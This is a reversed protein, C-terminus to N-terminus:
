VYVYRSRLLDKAKSDLSVGSLTELHVWHKLVWQAEAETWQTFPSASFQKLSRLTKLRELDQGQNLKLSQRLVMAENNALQPYEKIVMLYSWVRLSQLLVLQSLQSLIAEVTENERRIMSLSLTKMELCVWPRPDELLDQERVYDGKFVELSPISCLIDHIIRTPLEACSILELRKLIRLSQPAEEKLIRWCEEDFNTRSLDIETLAPLGYVLDRLEAGKFLSCPINLIALSKYQQGKSMAKNLVAVPPMQDMSRNLPPSIWNLRVLNPSKLVLILQALTISWGGHSSQMHLDQIKSEPASDLEDLNMSPGDGDNLSSFWRGSLKLTKMRCFLVKWLGVWNLEPGIVVLEGITLEELLTCGAMVALLEISTAHSISLKKLSSQHRRVLETLYSPNPFPGELWSLNVVLKSLNPCTWKSLYEPFWPYSGPVVYKFVRLERVLPLHKKIHDDEPFSYLNELHLFITSWLEPLLILYWQRNLRLCKVFSRKDLFTVILLIIEPTALPHSRTIFNEQPRQPQQQQQSQVVVRGLDYEVVDSKRGRSLRINFEQAKLQPYAVVMGETSLISDDSGSPHISHSVTSAKGHAHGPFRPITEQCLPSATAALSATLRGHSSRLPKLPASVQSSSVSTLSNDELSTDIASDESDTDSESIFGKNNNDTGTSVHPIDGAHVKINSSNNPPPPSAHVVVPKTAANQASLLQAKLRLVPKIFLDHGRLYGKDGKTLGRRQNIRKEKDNVFVENYRRINTINPTEPWNNLNCFDKHTKCTVVHVLDQEHASPIDQLFNELENDPKPAMAVSFKPKSDVPANSVLEM